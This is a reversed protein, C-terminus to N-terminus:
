YKAVVPAAAGTNFRITVGATAEFEWLSLNVTGGGFAAPVHGSLQNRPAYIAAFDFSTHDAMNYSFGAAIHDKVIGPALINFVIDSSHIPSTNYSYGARLTLSPVARWEGGITFVDIDHWGFGPGGSSGLPMPIVSSNGVSAIDSYFIHKYDFLLTLAPLADWAVGATINAPAEFSGQNAFLGRYSQFDTTAAPTAGAVALRWGPVVNWQAGARVGIGVGWNYGQNTVNTPDSSLGELASLGWATFRQVVVFPAVGVSVSGFRHAYAASIFTQILDVGTLGTGFVGYTGTNPNFINYSTDLGGNGYVALGVSSEGDLPQSYAFTPVPFLNHNSSATGPAIFGTEIGTYERFPTFLTLSGNLQQGVDVLGAPNIAIATADESDAVGAGALSKQVAGYGAQLYGDTAQADNELAALGLAAVVITTAM